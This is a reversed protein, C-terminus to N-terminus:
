LLMTTIVRMCAIQTKYKLKQRTKKYFKVIQSVTQSLYCHLNLGNQM